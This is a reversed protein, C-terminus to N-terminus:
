VLFNRVFTYIVVIVVPVLWGILYGGIDRYAWDRIRLGETIEYSLFLVLTIAQVGLIGWILTDTALSLAMLTGMLFGFAGHVGERDLSMKRAPERRWVRGTFWWDPNGNPPSSIRNERGLQEIDTHNWDRIPNKGVSIVCWQGYEQDKYYRQELDSREKNTYPPRPM